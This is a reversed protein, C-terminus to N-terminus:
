VFHFDSVHLQAKLIGSLTITDHADLTVVTNGHGDDATANLAAQANAFLTSSFQLTDTAAHFDTVTDHGINAFNFVFNNSGGSGTLTQNAASAVVTNAAPTTAPPDFLETGGHGDSQFTFNNGSPIGGVVNITVNHGLGDSVTIVDAIPDYNDASHDFAINPLDIIDTTSLHGTGGAGTGEISFPNAASTSPSTGFSDIQLTGTDAEFTILTPYSASGSVANEIEATSGAEITVPTNGGLIVDTGGNVDIVGNHPTPDGAPNFALFEVNTVALSGTHQPDAGDSAITTVNPNGNVIQTTITYDSRADSFVAINWGGSGTANNFHDVPGSGATTDRGVFDYLNNVGAAGTVTDNYQTGAIYNTQTTSTLSVDDLHRYASADPGFSFQLDALGGTGTIGVTYENFGNQDTVLTPTLTQGNWEVSFDGPTTAPTTGNIWWDPGAWFTLAYAQGATTGITQELTTTASSPGIDASYAGNAAATNDVSVHSLDTGQVNWGVFNGTEFDGNLEYHDGSETIGGGNNVATINLGPPNGGGGDGGGGIIDSQPIQSADAVGLLTLVNGNGFDVTTNGHDDPSITPNPNSGFGSIELKDHENPNFEAGGGQDFDTITVAGYGASYVFTDSGTGGTLTHTGGNANGPDLTDNGSGGSYTANYGASGFSDDGSGGVFSFTYPSVLTNLANHNTNFQQVDTMWSAADFLGTFVAIPTTGDAAFEHIATITGGTVNGGTYAFNYGDFVFENSSGGVGGDVITFTSGSAGSQLTGSGMESLPNPSTQFDLGASTLVTVSAAPQYLVDTGGNHDQVLVFNSPNYTGALNLTAQLTSGNYIQLTGDTQTWVAHDNSAYTAGTLDITDGSVFGSIPAQFDQTDDLKLTGTADAFIVTQGAAVSSEFELTGGNSVTAFGAPGSFAGKVDMTGDDAKLFSSTSENYVSDDIEMRGGSNAELTGTNVIQNGTDLFLTEGALNAHIESGNTLTLSGDDLGIHGAGSIGSENGLSDDGTAGTITDNSAYLEVIGTQWLSVAGSIKLTSGAGLNIVGQNYIEGLLTLSASADVQVTAGITVPLATNSSGYVHSGDFTAGSVDGGYVTGGIITAGDQIHVAASPGNAKVIGDNAGGDTNDITGGNITVVGTGTAEILGANGGSGSGNLITFTGGTVDLTANSNLALTKVTENVSSTVTAAATPDIVVDDLYEPVAPNSWNSSVAFNGSGATWSFPEIPAYFSIGTGPDNPNGDDSSFEFNSREYNGSLQITQYEAVNNSIYNLTLVDTVSDFSLSATSSIVDTFNIIDGTGFGSVTSTGDIKSSSDLALIDNTGAAFTIATNHVTAGNLTLTSGNGITLTGGTVKTGDDLVLIAGSTTGVDIAGNNTVAVDHLKADFGYTGNNGVEIDLTDGSEIALTGGSITTGDDLTLTPDDTTIAGVQIAGLNTVSVGDLTAGVDDSGAAIELTSGLGITLTGTGGGNVVTGNDLTLTAAGDIGVEITGIDGVNIGALTAGSGRVTAGAEVDIVDGSDDLTLDGGGDSTLITGGKLILTSGTSGLATGIEISNDDSVFVGNLMAGFSANGNAVYVEGDNAIDIEGGTITTGDVLNLVAGSGDYPQLFDVEITGGGTVTVGDLTADSAAQSAGGNGHPGVEIDLTGDSGIKLTGGTITTDDDLTLIAGSANLDVDIAGGGSVAVHDLTADSIGGDFGGQSGGVEIDLTGHNSITLAGGTITTDDDLALIAGSATPDVEITGANSVAIADLTADPHGHGVPPVGKIALVDGADALELTGSSSDSTITTGGQLVLTSGTSGGTGIEIEGDDTVSVDDFTAGVAAGGNEVYLESDNNVIDVAVGTITTRGDLILTAGFGNQGIGIAGGSVTVGDLLADFNTGNFDGPGNSGIEIDLADSSGITMTGSTITTADELTLVAGAGNLDVDIVGGGSV